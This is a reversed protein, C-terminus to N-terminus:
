CQENPMTIKNAMEPVYSKFMNLPNNLVLFISVSQTTADDESLGREDEGKPTLFGDDQVLSDSRYHNKSQLHVRDENSAGDQRRLSGYIQNRRMKEQHSPSPFSFYSAQFFNYM